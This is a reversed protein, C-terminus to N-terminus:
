KVYRQDGYTPPGTPGALTSIEDDRVNVHLPPEDDHNVDKGAGGGSGSGRCYLLYLVILILLAGGGCAIGIIAPTSLFPDDAPAATPPQTTAVIVNSVGIVGQLVQDESSRLLTVYAQKGDNGQFPRMALADPTISPDSTDYQFTQTFELIIAEQQLDRAGARILSRYRRETAIVDTVQYTTVFNSVSGSLDNITFSESFEKTLQEWNSQTSPPFATVGALGMRLGSLSETISGAPTPAMTPKNTEVVDVSPLSTDVPQASPEDTPAVPPSTPVILIPAESPAVPADTPDVPPNTPEEPPDTPTDTPVVPIDTPPPATPSSTAPVATTPAMTSEVPPLTPTAVPPAATPATTSLETPVETEEVDPSEEPSTTQAEDDTVTVSFGLGNECFQDLNDAFFLPSRTVDSATFPYIVPSGDGVLIADTDDCTGTPNIYVTHNETAPWTFTITDGLVADVDEFGGNVTPLSWAIPIDVAQSRGALCIVALTFICAASVNM